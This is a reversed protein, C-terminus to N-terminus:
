RFSCNLSIETYNSNCAIAAMYYNALKYPIKSRPVFFLRPFLNKKVCVRTFTLCDFGLQAECAPIFGVPGHAQPAV